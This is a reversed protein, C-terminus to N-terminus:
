TAHCQEIRSKLTTTSVRVLQYPPVAHGTRLYRHLDIFILAPLLCNRLPASCYVACMEPREFGQKSMRRCVIEFPHIHEPQDLLYAARVLLGVVLESELDASLVVQHMLRVGLVEGTGLHRVQTM